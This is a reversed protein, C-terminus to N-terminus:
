AARPPQPIEWPAVAVFWLLAVNAVPVLAFLSLWWAKGIRRCILAAPVVIAGVYVLVLLVLLLVEPLGLGFVNGGHRMVIIEATGSRPEFALKARLTRFPAAPRLNYRM